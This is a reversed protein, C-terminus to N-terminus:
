PRSGQTDGQRVARAEATIDIGVPCWTICRGCGVCGSVGFQEHWTALKHTIWQRYRAGASTRVSGGHVYSFEQSFCSDWVRRRETASGQLDTADEVTACFCTPCVMTCNACGLCRKAVEDWNPDEYRRYLLEQLGDGDLVRGMRTAANEVAAAAAELDSAEAARHPLCEAVAAGRESGVELLLEHRGAEVRETLALDFGAPARPGARMSACFCTGSPSTCNVALVFAAERRGRYAPDVFPGGIFVRDQVLIASLECARVGVFAFSPPPTADPEASFGSKERRARWRVLAPPHLWRKWSHPGTAHGFLAADERRRLRYRGGEHEDTWGVPLDAAREIEDLVIAGDRVTPGVIRYGRERLADLLANAASAEVVLFDGPRM